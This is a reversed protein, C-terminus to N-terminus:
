PGQMKQQPQSLLSRKLHGKEAQATGEGWVCVGGVLSEKTVWLGPDAPEWALGERLRPSHSLITLLCAKSISHSLSAESISNPGLQAM